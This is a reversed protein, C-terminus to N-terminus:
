FIQIFSSRVCLKRHHETLLESVKATHWVHIIPKNMQSALIYDKGLLCVCRPPSSGGKYAKLQMRSNVDWLSVCFNDGSADTTLAVEFDAM